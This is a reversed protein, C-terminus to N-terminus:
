FVKSFVWLLHSSRYFIFALIDEKCLTAKPYSLFPSPFLQMLFHRCVHLCCCCYCSYFRASYEYSIPLDTSSLHWFTKKVYHQRQIHFSDQHFRSCFSIDAFMCVVVTVQFGQQINMSSPLDSSIEAFMRCCCYSSFRASNENFIPSWLLNIVFYQVKKCTTYSTSPWCKTYVTSQIHLSCHQSHSCLSIDAFMCVVVVVLFGQQIGMCFPWIM